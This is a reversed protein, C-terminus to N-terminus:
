SSAPLPLMTGRAVSLGVLQDFLWAGGVLWFLSAGVTDVFVETLRVGGDLAGQILRMTSQAAVENLSVKSRGLMQASIARASLIDHMYVLDPDAEVQAFLSERQAETLTKSDAYARHPGPPPNQTPPNQTPPNTKPPPSQPPRCAPTPTSLVLRIRSDEVCATLRHLRCRIYLVCQM